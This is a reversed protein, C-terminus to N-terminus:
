RADHIQQFRSRVSQVKDVQKKSVIKRIPDRLVNTGCHIEGMSTHYPTDDIFHVKNGQAKLRAEIAKDFSPIHTAPVILHDRVVLLNVVGPLFACCRRPSTTGSGEFLSPWSVEEFDRTLDNSSKRVFDKLRGVNDEIIDNIAYNLAIFDGEKTGKGAGPDKMQENLLKKVKLLFDRDYSTIKALDSDPSNKILDLAYLPDARVVSYGGPAWATPIFMVYEDIHGVTLWDTNGLFMRGKYGNDEFFKKAQPTITSGAVMIDDFPTVELNGGYDGHSQANSPNKFYVLDWMEAIVGPLRALGRGRNSDFVAQVLKGTGKLEAACIEMCDQMWIDSSSFKANVEVYKAADEASIGLAPIPNSGGSIIHLKVIDDGSLQSSENILKIVNFLDKVFRQTNYASVVMVKQPLNNNSVLKIRSVESLPPAAFAMSCCCVTLLVVVSFRNRWNSRKMKGGQNM